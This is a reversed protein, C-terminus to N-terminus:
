KRCWGTACMAGAIVQSFSDAALLLLLLSLGQVALAYEVLTSALWTENELSIQLNSDSAPNWYRLVRIGTRVASIGLFLVIISCLFLSLSWASFFM